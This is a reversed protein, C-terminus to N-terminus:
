FKPSLLIISVEFHAIFFYKFKGSKKLEEAIQGWLKEKWVSDIYEKNPMDYLEECKCVLERLKKHIESSLFLCSENCAFVRITTSSIYSKVYDSDLLHLGTRVRETVDFM